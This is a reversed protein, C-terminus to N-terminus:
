FTILRSSFLIKVLRVPETSFSDMTGYQRIIKAYDGYSHAKYTNLNFTKRRRAQPRCTSSEHQKPAPHSQFGEEGAAVQTVPCSVDSSGAQVNSLHSHNTGKKKLQRQVRANAEWLLEKTKFAPCTVDRFSCLLKGLSTTVSEMIDLTIDHHMCLKALRHWHAMVFLLDLVASNHPEPLLRDFV